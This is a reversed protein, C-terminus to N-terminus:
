IGLAAELAKLRAEPGYRKFVMEQGTEALHKALKKDTLVREIAIAFENGTEAALYHTGNELGLGEVAKATAVVPLGVALAEIVKIRTGGGSRLPIATVAAHKYIPNLDLPNGTLRAGAAKIMHALKRGPSRGAVHLTADPQTQGLLPMIDKCLEKVANKNPKYGLHGVFLIERNDRKVVPEREACWSPVPNPVIYIPKETSIKQTLVADQESCVWINDVASMLARDASAAKRINRTFVILSLFRLVVPLRMIQFQKFLNSEVNHFDAILKLSPFARRVAIVAHLLPVGEFVVYDPRILDIKAILKNLSADHLKVATPHRPRFISKKATDRELSIIQGNNIDLLTKFIAHNRREVGSMSGEADNLVVQVFTMKLKM